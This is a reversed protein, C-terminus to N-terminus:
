LKAAFRQELWQLDAAMAAPDADRIAKFPVEISRERLESQLARMLVGSADSLAGQGDHIACGPSQDNGGLVALVECGHRIYEQLQDAIVASIERCRARGTETDLASRISIGSARTRSLGLARIEPCPMQVIGVGHDACLQLLERNVAPFSAAGADRCNQNLLCEITAVLRRGRADRTSPVGFAGSLKKRLSGAAFPHTPLQCTATMSSVVPRTSSTAGHRRLNASRAGHVAECFQLPPRASGRM